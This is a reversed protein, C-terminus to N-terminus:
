LCFCACSCPQVACLPSLAALDPGMVAGRAVSTPEAERKGVCADGRM